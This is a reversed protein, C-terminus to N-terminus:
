PVIRAALAYWPDGRKKRKRLSLPIAVGTIFLFGPFVLDPVTITDTSRAAHKLWPSLDPMPHIFNVFIMGAIVFGRFVDLSVLREDRAHPARTAAAQAPTAAEIPAADNM